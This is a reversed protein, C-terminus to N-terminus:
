KPSSKMANIIPVNLEGSKLLWRRIDGDTVCGILQNESNVIFLIGKANKDIKSMAEVVTIKENGILQLMKTQDM